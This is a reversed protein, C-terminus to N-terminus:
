STRMIDAQGLHNQGQEGLKREVKQMLRDLFINSKPMSLAIRYFGYPTTDFKFARGHANLFHVLIQFLWEGWLRLQYNERIYQVLEPAPSPLKHYKYFDTSLELVGVPLIKEFSLNDMSLGSRFKEVEFAFETIAFTLMQRHKSIEHPELLREVKAGTYVDNELSFGETCIVNDYRAPIGEFLWMGRNAVFAVPVHAFEDRRRYVRLLNERGESAHIKVEPIGHREILSQYIDVNQPDEIVLHAKASDRLLAVLENIKNIKNNTSPM